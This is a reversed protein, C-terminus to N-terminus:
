KEAGQAVLWSRAEGVTFLSGSVLVWGDGARAALELASQLAQGMDARTLWADRNPPSPGKLRAAQGALLAVPAARTLRPQSFIVRGALPLLIKLIAPLDKDAMIGLVMILPGPRYTKMRALSQSLARAAAPNHAGDLWIDIGQLRFKELRGPWKVQNLGQRVDQPSIKFGYQNLSLAAAAALAANAPQHIGPLNTSLDPLRWGPGVLSFTGERRRLRIDRGLALVPASCAYAIGELVQRGPPAAGHLLPVGPKIIGGKDWAIKSLTPGLWAQHDLAVNTIIGLLPACLNTSDFRGGLGTELIAVDLEGSRHKSQFWAFALATLFEFFTYDRGAWAWVRDLWLLFEEDGIPQGNLRFRENVKELHPSSYYGVKYGARILIAELMAGTSGKGNTGAIHVAPLDLHPNGLHALLRATAELGLKIGFKELEALAALIDFGSYNRDM